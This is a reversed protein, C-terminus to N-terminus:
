DQDRELHPHQISCCRIYLLALHSTDHTFTPVYIKRDTNRCRELWHVTTAAAKRPNEILSPLVIKSITGYKLNLKNRNKLPAPPLFEVFYWDTNPRLLEGSTKLRLLVIKFTACIM